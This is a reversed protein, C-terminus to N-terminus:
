RAAAPGSTWGIRQALVVAFGAQLVAAALLAIAPLAAALLLRLLNVHDLGSALGNVALLVALVAAAGLLVVLLNASWSGSAVRRLERGRFGPGLSAAPLLPALLALLLCGPLLLLLTPLLFAPPTVLGFLFLRPQWEALPAPLAWGALLALLSIAVLAVALIAASRREARDLRPLVRLPESTLLVRPVATAFAILLWLVILDLATVLLPSLFDAGPGFAVQSARDRLLLWPMAAGYTPLGALLLQPARGLLVRLTELLARLPAVPLLTRRELYRQWDLEPM